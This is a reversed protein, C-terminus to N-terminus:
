RSVLGEWCYVSASFSVALSASLAAEGSAAELELAVAEEELQAIYRPHKRIPQKRFAHLCKTMPLTSPRMQRVCM